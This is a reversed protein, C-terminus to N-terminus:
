KVTLREIEELAAKRKPDEFYKRAPELKQILWETVATKLDMPHLKKEAYDKELDEYSNYTIDGGFKSDRKVTLSTNQDYFILHKVWDLIPNFEIIGEPAYANNVKRKIEEPEDHIFVASDPKSKSMKLALKIEEKSFSNDKKNIGASKLLEKATEEAYPSINALTQAVKIEEDSYVGEPKLLRQLLHHHIAVPKTKGLDKAAERAVVHVNRQDTGAHAINVGLAFIDASQMAPYILMAADSIESEKRGMITTSRIIRALTTAKSVKIVDAWYNQGLKEYLESGLVFEIKDPDAGVCIAAAKMGEEFYERAMKSATELTGDLKKNLWTHWDALLITTQVGAEQLDKIKLLVAFGTGIHIKGSIELGIYHKLPTNSEILARLEEPTLVEELNKTILDFKESSTM